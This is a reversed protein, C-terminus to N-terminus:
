DWHFRWYPGTAMGAALNDLLGDMRELTAPCYAAFELALQERDEESEPPHAVALELTDGTYSLVEAGFRGHWDKLAAAHEQPLPSRNCGGFKLFAPVEFSNKAPIRAFFVVLKFEERGPHRHAGPESVVEARRAAGRRPKTSLLDLRDEMWRAVRINRASALLDPPLDPTFEIGDRVFAVDKESGLLVPWFGGSDVEDRLGRWVELANAGRAALLEFPFEPPKVEVLHRRWGNKAEAEAKGGGFLKKFLSM